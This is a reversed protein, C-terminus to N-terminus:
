MTKLLAGIDLKKALTAIEGPARLDMNKQHALRGIEAVGGMALITEINDQNIEEDAPPASETFVLGAIPIEAHRLAAISLLSHNIAGLANDVVLVVPFSFAKILDLMTLKEDLPVLLGGAGEALVFEHRGCLWNKHSVLEGMDVPRKELRAALHPSCAKAYRLPCLHAFTEADVQMGSGALAWEIDLIEGSDTGTQVPKFPVADIGENRLATLLCTTVLTKGVGTGTGSIFLGKQL